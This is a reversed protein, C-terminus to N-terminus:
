ISFWPTQLSDCCRWDLLPLFSHLSVLPGATTGNIVLTLFAIGGIMGFAKNTDDSFPSDDGAAREVSVDLAIALAIGM